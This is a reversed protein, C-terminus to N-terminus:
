FIQKGTIENIKQKALEPIKTVGCLWNTFTYGQIMCEEVILKRTSNYECYRLNYMFDRLKKTDPSYEKESNM